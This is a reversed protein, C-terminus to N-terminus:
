NCLCSEAAYLFYLFGFTGLMLIPASDVLLPDILLLRPDLDEEKDSL